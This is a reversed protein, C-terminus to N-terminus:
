FSIVFSGGFTFTSMNYKAKGRVTGAEIDFAVDPLAAGSFGDEIYTMEYTKRTFDYDAFVRWSFNSKYAFTLSLGTGWSFTNNADVTLANWSTEFMEDTREYNRYVYGSYNADIDLANTVSRGALLKTGLAFRKGLPLNFYPGVSGVFETLHDSEINFTADTIIDDYLDIITGLGEYMGDAIDPFNGVPTTRIKLRGGVGIYKNFFYAGEVGLVTSNRFKLPLTRVDTGEGLSNDYTINIDKHNDIGIGMNVAFFSPSENINPYEGLDNMLLGKDKFILDCLAYGLEGAMIGIGAGSLVDSVWHRNNLVRMAGTATAVSYAAVSYWPSVTMGYEKHMITAATFATATHGSPWSNATSGDPRMEKSTYKIGNVMGAMLAYSMAASASMRLFSSRGKVGALNMAATAVLPAFQTYNDVTTKFHSVLRLKKNENRYDQRFGNKESKAIIGAVFLPVGAFSVDDMFKYAKVGEHTSFNGSIWSGVSPDPSPDAISSSAWTASESLSLSPAAEPMSMDLKLELESEDICREDFTFESSLATAGAATWLGGIIAVISLIRKMM